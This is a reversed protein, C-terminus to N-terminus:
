SACKMNELCASDVASNTEVLNVYNPIGLRKVGADMNTCGDVKTHKLDAGMFGLKEELTLRSM